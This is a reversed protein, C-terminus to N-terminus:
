DAAPTEIIPSGERAPEIDVPAWPYWLTAYGVWVLVFFVILLVALVSTPYYGWSRSYPYVPLTAVLLVILLVLILTWIMADVLLSGNDQTVAGRGM